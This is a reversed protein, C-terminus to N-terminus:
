NISVFSVCLLFHVRRPVIIIIYPDLKVKFKCFYISVMQHSQNGYRAQFKMNWFNIPFKCKALQTSSLTGTNKSTNIKGTKPNPVIERLKLWYFIKCYWMTLLRWKHEIIEEPKQKIKLGHKATSFLGLVTALLLFYFCFTTKWLITTIMFVRVM